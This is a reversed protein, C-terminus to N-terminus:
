PAQTVSQARNAAKEEAVRARGLIVVICAYACLLLSGIQPAPHPSTEDYFPNAFGFATLGLYLGALAVLVPNLRALTAPTLNRDRPFTWFSAILLAMFPLTDLLIMELPGWSDEDYRLLGIAAHDLSLLGANIFADNLRMIYSLLLLIPAVYRPPLQFAFPPRWSLAIILALVAVIAALSAQNLAPFDRFAPAIHLAGDTVQTLDPHDSASIILGDVGSHFNATTLAYVALGAIAIALLILRWIRGLNPNAITIPPGGYPTVPIRM